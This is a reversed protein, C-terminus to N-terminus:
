KDLPTKVTLIDITEVLRGIITTLNEWANKMEEESKYVSYCLKFMPQTVVHSMEHAIIGHVDKKDLEKSKWGNVLLPYVRIDVTLYRNDVHASAAIPLGKEYDCMNDENEKTSYFIKSDYNEIKLIKKFKEVDEAIMDRLEIPIHSLRDIKEVEKNKKQSKKSVKKLKKELKKM